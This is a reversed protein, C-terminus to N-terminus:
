ILPTKLDGRSWRATRNVSCAILAAAWSPCSRSPPFALFILLLAYEVLDQGGKEASRYRLGRGPLFWIQGQERAPPGGFPDSREITVRATAEPARFVRRVMAVVGDAGDDAAIAAGIAFAASVAIAATGAIGSPWFPLAGGFPRAMWSRKTM